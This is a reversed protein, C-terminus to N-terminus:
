IEWHERVQRITEEPYFHRFYRSGAMRDLYAEPLKVRERFDRYTHAYVKNRGVNANVLEFASLGTFTGIIKEKQPDPLDHHLILLEVGRGNELVRWGKDRPFPHAYVDIGFHKEMKDFFILPIRHPYNELFLTRLEELSFTHERYPVGTDREFNHFFASVNRGVPERVPSIIKLPRKEAKHYWRHLKRVWLNPHGARFSHDHVVIGPYSEYLSNYISSSAVKGMQFVFVPVHPDWGRRLKFFRGAALLPDLHYRIRQRWEEPIMIM